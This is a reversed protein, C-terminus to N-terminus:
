QIQSAELNGLAKARGIDSASRWLNILEIEDESIISLAEQKGWKIDVDIEALFDNIDVGMGKAMMNLNGRGGSDLYLLTKTEEEPMFAKGWLPSKTRKGLERLLVAFKETVTERCSSIHLIKRNM